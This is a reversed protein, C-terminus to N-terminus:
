LLMSKPIISLQAELHFYGNNPFCGITKLQYLRKHGTPEYQM